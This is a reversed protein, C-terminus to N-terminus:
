LYVPTIVYNVYSVKAKLAYVTNQKGYKNVVYFVLSGGFVCVCTTFVSKYPNKCKVNNVNRQIIPSITINKLLKSTARGLTAM